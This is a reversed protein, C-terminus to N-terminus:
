EVTFISHLDSAQSFLQTDRLPVGIGGSEILLGDHQVAGDVKGLM